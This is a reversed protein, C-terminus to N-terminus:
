AAARVRRAAYRMWWRGRKWLVTAGTLEWKEFDFRLIDHHSDIRTQIQDWEVFGGPSSNRHWRGNSKFLKVWPSVIYPSHYFIITNIYCCYAQAKPPAPAKTILPEWIVLRWPKLQLVLLDSIDPAPGDKCGSSYHFALCGAVGGPAAEERTWANDRKSWWTDIGRVPRKGHEKPGAIFPRQRPPPQRLDQGSFLPYQRNSKM